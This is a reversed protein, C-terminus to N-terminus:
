MLRSLRSAVKRVTKRRTSGIPFFRTFIRMLKDYRNIKKLLDKDENPRINMKYIYDVALLIQQSMNQVEESVVENRHNHLNNIAEDWLKQVYEFSWNQLNCYCDRSLREYLATIKIPEKKTM